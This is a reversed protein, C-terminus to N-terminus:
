PHRPTPGEDEPRLLVGFTHSNRRRQNKAQHPSGKTHVPKDFFYTVKEPRGLRKTYAACDTLNSFM